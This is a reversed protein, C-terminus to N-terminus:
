RHRKTPYLVTFHEVYNSGDEDVQATAVLVRPRGQGDLVIAVAGAEPPSSWEGDFESLPTSATTTTADDLLDAVFADAEEPTKGFSWAPPRLSGLVTQGGYMGIPSFRARTSAEAWFADLEREREESDEHSPSEDRANEAADVDDLDRWHPEGTENM